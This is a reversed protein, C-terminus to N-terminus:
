ACAPMTIVSFCPPESRRALVVCATGAPSPQYSSVPWLHNQVWGTNATKKVSACAGAPMVQKTASRGCGPKRISRSLSLIPPRQRADLSTSYWDSGARM